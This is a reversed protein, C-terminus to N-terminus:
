GVKTFVEPNFYRLILSKKDKINRSWDKLINEIFFKTRGYANIPNCKHSEDIPFYDPHGYVTTSSSFIIERCLYLDMVRLLNITGNVNVNYLSLKRSEEVSKLGAFHIM